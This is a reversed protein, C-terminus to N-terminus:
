SKTPISPLAFSMDTLVDRQITKLKIHATDDGLYALVGDALFCQILKSKVLQFCTADSPLEIIKPLLEVLMNQDNLMAQGEEKSPLAISSNMKQEVCKGLACVFSKNYDSLIFNQMSLIETKHEPNQLNTLVNIDMRINFKTGDNLFFVTMGNLKTLPTFTETYMSGNYPFWTVEKQPPSNDVVEYEAIYNHKDLIYKEMFSFYQQKANNQASGVTTCGFIFFLLLLILTLSFLKYKIGM